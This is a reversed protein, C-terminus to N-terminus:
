KKASESPSSTVSPSPTVTEAPKASETSTPSGTASPVDSPDIVTINFPDDKKLGNALETLKDKSLGKKLSAYSIQIDNGLGLVVVKQSDLFVSDAFKMGLEFSKNYNTMKGDVAAFQIFSGQSLETKAVPLVDMKPSLVADVTKRITPVDTESTVFQTKMKNEDNGEADGRTIEWFQGTYTERVKLSKSVLDVKEADKFDANKFGRVSTINKIDESNEMSYFATMKLEPLTAAADKFTEADIKKLSLTVAASKATKDADKEENMGSYAKVSVSKFYDKGEFAKEIEAKIQNSSKEPAVGGSAFLAAIGAGGILLALLVGIIIKARKTM